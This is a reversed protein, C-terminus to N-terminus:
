ERSRVCFNWMEKRLHELLREGEQQQFPGTTGTQTVIYIGGGEANYHAFPFDAAPSIELVTRGGWKPQPDPEVCHRVLGGPVDSAESIFAIAMKGNKEYVAAVGCQKNFYKADGIRRASLVPKGDVCLVNRDERKAISLSKFM